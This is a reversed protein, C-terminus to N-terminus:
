EEIGFYQPRRQLEDAIFMEAFLPFQKEIRRRLNAQRVRAKAEGSWRRIPRQEIPEWGITWGTGPAYETGPGSIKEIEEPVPHPRDCLVSLAIRSM